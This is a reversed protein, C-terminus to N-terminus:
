TYSIYDKFLRSQPICTNRRGDASLLHRSLDFQSSLGTGQGSELQQTQDPQKELHDKM